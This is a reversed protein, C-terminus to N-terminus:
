KRMGMPRERLIGKRLHKLLGGTNPCNTPTRLSGISKGIRLVNDLRRRMFEKTRGLDDSADHLWVPLTALYVASLLGRKTYYNHDSSRDGAYIWIADAIKHTLRLSLSINWPLSLLHAARGIALRHDKHLAFHTELALTVKATVGDPPPMTSLTTQLIRIAHDCHWRIMDNTTDPFLTQAFEPACGIDNAARMLTTQGWGDFPIHALAATILTDRVANREDMITKTDDVM